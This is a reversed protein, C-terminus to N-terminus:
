GWRHSNRLVEILALAVNEAALRLEADNGQGSTRGLIRIVAMIMRGPRLNADEDM